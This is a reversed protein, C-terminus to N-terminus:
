DLRASSRFTNSNGGPCHLQLSVWEELSTCPILQSYDRYPYITMGRNLIMSRAALAASALFRHSMHPWYVVYLENAGFHRLALAEDSVGAPVAWLVEGAGKDTTKSSM